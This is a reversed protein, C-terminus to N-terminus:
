KIRKTARLIFEKVINLTQSRRNLNVLSPMIFLKYGKNALTEHFHVHECVENGEKDMGLFHGDLFVSTRYIGLGGFASQVAIPEAKESISKMKQKVAMRHADRSPFTQLLIQYEKWCDVENWNKARLAWIDYYRFPQNAFAVDWSHFKWISEVSKATLDRNVGDLDLMAVYDFDQYMMRIKAQLENRASAIRVTRRSETKEIRLDQIFTFNSLRSQIDNLKELTRDTSFSECILIHIEGFPAFSKILDQVVNEIKKELNRATGCVVIRSETPSKHM